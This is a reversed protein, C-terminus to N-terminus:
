NTRENMQVTSHYFFFYLFSLMSRIANFTIRTINLQITFYISFVSVYLFTHMDYHRSFFVVVFFSMCLLFFFVFDSIFIFLVLDWILCKRETKKEGKKQKKCFFWIVFNEITICSYNPHVVLICIWIWILIHFNSFATTIRIWKSGDIMTSLGGICCGLPNITYYRKYVIYTYQVKGCRWLSHSEMSFPISCPM